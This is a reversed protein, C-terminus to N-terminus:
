RKGDIGNYQRKTFDLRAAQTKISNATKWGEKKMDIKSRKNELLLPGAEIAYSINKWDISSNKGKCM